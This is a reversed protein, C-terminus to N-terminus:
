GRRQLQDISPAGPSLKIGLTNLWRKISGDNLYKWSSDFWPMSKLHPLNIITEGSDIYRKVAEKLDRKHQQDTRVSLTKKQAEKQGIWKDALPKTEELEKQASSSRAREIELEKETNALRSRELELADETVNGLIMIRHLALILADLRQPLSEPRWAISSAIWQADDYEDVHYSRDFGGKYRIDSIDRHWRKQKGIREVLVPIPGNKLDLPIGEEIAQSDDRLLECVHDLEFLDGFCPGQEPLLKNM